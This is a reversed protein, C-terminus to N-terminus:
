SGFEAPLNGHFVSTSFVTVPHRDSLFFVAQVLSPLPPPTGAVNPPPTGKPQGSPTPASADSVGGSAVVVWVSDTVQAVGKLYAGLASSPLKKAHCSVAGTATFDGYHNLLAAHVFTLAEQDTVPVVPVVPQGPASQGPQLTVVPASPEVFKADGCNSFSATSAGPTSTPAPTATPQGCAALALPLVVLAALRRPTLM